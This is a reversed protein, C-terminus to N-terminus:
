QKIKCSSKLSCMERQQDKRRRDIINKFCSKVQIWTRGILLDGAEAIAKECKAKGIGEMSMKIFADHFKEIIYKKQKPLWPKHVCQKGLNLLLYMYKELVDIFVNLNSCVFLFIKVM